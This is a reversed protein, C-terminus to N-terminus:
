DLDWGYALGNTITGAWGDAMTCGQSLQEPTMSRVSGDLRAVTMRGKHWPWAGGYMKASNKDSVKWGFSVYYASGGTAFSDVRVGQRHRYRCPPVVLYNGGGFPLGYADRGWVSDVFAITRSPDSVASTSRPVAMWGSAASGVIPSLYLYNYGLNSRQSAKYFRADTNDPVLDEDFIGDTGSRRGTDSPCEFTALNRHYPLLLQVWTRDNSSTGIVMPRYSAPMFLEDYDAVYLTTSLAAQRFNSACVSQQASAQATSFVPFLVGALILLIALVTLLESLTFALARRQVILEHTDRNYCSYRTIGFM